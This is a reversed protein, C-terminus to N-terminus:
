RNEEPEMMAVTDAVRQLDKAINAVWRTMETFQDRTWGSGRANVHVIGLDRLKREPDARLELDFLVPQLERNLADAPPDTLFATAVGYFRALAHGAVISPKAEGTVLKRTWTPTAGIAAAIERVDFREGGAGGRSAYLFVVRQRVRADPDREDVERGDLLSRVDEEPVGTDHGLRATDLVEGRDFGYATCLEEIRALTQRLPPCPESM